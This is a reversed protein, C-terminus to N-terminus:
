EVTDPVDNFADADAHERGARGHSHPRTGQRQRSAQVNTKEKNSVVKVDAGAEKFAKLPETLEVQEVGDIALVAITCGKLEGAMAIEPKNPVRVASATGISCDSGNRFGGM